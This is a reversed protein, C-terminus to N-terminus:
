EQTGCPEMTNLSYVTASPSINRIHKYHKSFVIAGLRKVFNRLKRKFFFCYIQTVQKKLNVDETPVSSPAVSSTPLHSRKKLFPSMNRQNPRKM